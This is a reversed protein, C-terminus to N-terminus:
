SLKVTQGSQLDKAIMSLCRRSRSRGTVLSRHWGTLFVSLFNRLSALYGAAM